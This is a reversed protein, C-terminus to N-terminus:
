LGELGEQSMDVIILHSWAHSPHPQKGGGERLTVRVHICYCMQDEHTPHDEQHEPM